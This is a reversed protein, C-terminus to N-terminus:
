RPSTAAAALPSQDPTGWGGALAKYVAVLSTAAGTQAQALRDRAALLEREADLVVLFDTSGVAFRERAILAAQESSRAAEFLLEAQRQTRSYTALAGETEELATLVTNEYVAIAGENRADAAAIQARIRGFDLLNWTMQAGLNYAYSSGKMLTGWSSSNQGLTGGLTVQPFWAGRAVGAQAAAAAVQAEAVQIDPRRRLLSAPSGITGLDVARLGPLPQVAELEADLATPPLGCLVALRYRTRMLAAELAPINAATSQVLARARETDLATGRGVNERVEVLNLAAQQTELSSVAVRLQEQLGRLDFYNRGVEASVSLQAARLGAEGAMVGAQAARRADSLRGFLDAEWSVDFGASYANSTSTVGADNKGRIRAAGVGLGVSPLLNADAFRGLARSERLSASATRIDVNAKLAREVLSDLQPDRFNRWFAAASDNDGAAGSGNVFGAPLPPEFRQVTPAHSCAALLAAAATALLAARFAARPRSFNTLARMM